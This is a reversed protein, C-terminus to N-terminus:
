SPPRGAMKRLRQLEEAQGPIMACGAPVEGAQWVAVPENRQSHVMMVNRRASFSCPDLKLARTFADLAAPVNKLAYDAGGINNWHDSDEGKLAMSRQFHTLAGAPDNMSFLVVGLENHLEPSDPDVALGRELYRRAAPDNRYLHAMGLWARGKNPSKESIDSWLSKEDRWVENRSITALLMAPTLVAFALALKPRPIRDLLLGAAVAMCLLPLYTRHEFMADAQAVISSSPAILVFFGLAWLAAASRKKVALWALCVFLVLLALAAALTTWPTLLGTSFRVDHDLNLGVPAIMLRLYIWLVRGQTLLYDFTTVGRVRGVGPALPSVVILYFLRAAAVAAIGALAAYYGFRARRREFFDLMLLFAPLAVTEEKALLSVAFAAASGAYQERQYLWVTWLAFHTSLLSSRAFVYTVAETQLPHLAFLVAACGAAFPSLYRRAISLLLVCNAAHLALNVAHYMTPDLGELLYNWHFTLYTLPRTQDLRFIDWGFGPSVIQPNAFIASDDFHFASTLSNAYAIAVLLVLAAAQWRFEDLFSLAPATRMDHIM